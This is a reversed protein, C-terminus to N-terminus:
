KRGLSGFSEVDPRSFSNAESQPGSCMDQIARQREGAERIGGEAYIRAREVARWSSPISCLTERKLNMLALKGDAIVDVINAALRAITSKGVRVIWHRELWERFVFGPLRHKDGNSLRLWFRTGHRAMTLFVLLLQKSSAWRNGAPFLVTKNLQYGVARDEALGDPM